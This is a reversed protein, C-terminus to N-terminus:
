SNNQEGEGAEDPEGAPDEMEETDMDNLHVPGNETLLKKLEEAESLATLGVLLTGSLEQVSLDQIKYNINEITIPKINKIEEKLKKNEEEIKNLKEFIQEILTSSSNQTEKEQEDNLNKEVDEINVYPAPMNKEPPAVYQNNPPYYSWYPNNSSQSHSREQNYPYTPYQWHYYM